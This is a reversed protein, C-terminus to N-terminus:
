YDMTKNEFSSNLSNTNDFYNQINDETITITDQTLDEKLITSNEEANIPTPITRKNM